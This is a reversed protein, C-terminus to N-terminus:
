GFTAGSEIVNVRSVGANIDEVTVIPTPISEIVRATLEAFQEIQLSNSDMGRAVIGGNQAYSIGVGGRQGFANNFDMFQNSANRNLVGILEGKEAEFRTGDSGVFKTGGASHRNGGVEMIGGSEFKTDTKAIQAVNGLGFLLAKGGALTARVISTPDGVVLQSAYAKTASLFADATALAISLDKNKIGFANLLSGVENLANRTSDIKAIEAKKKLQEDLLYYKKNIKNVDAGTKEANAVELQRQQELRSQQISLEDQFILDEIARANELDIRLQEQKATKRALEAEDIKAQNDKNIQNIADNYENENILGEALRTAEFQRRQEALANLRATEEILIQESLFKNKDILSKSKDLEADLERRAFDVTLEAQKQLFDNQINLKEAEYETKSKKGAKFEQDLLALRKATLDQEFVFADELTKSKFGQEAIFLDILSKSEKLANAIREESIRKAEAQAEKRAGALVRLQELEAELARDQADDLQKELDILEQQGERSTDNLSQQIKLQQIKKQIIAEEQVSLEKTLRIIELSAKEREKFSKSTDKAILRQADILDNTAIQARNYALTSKEIDKQLRDIEKGKEIAEKFFKATQEGAVKVRDILKNNAEATADIGKKLQDGDFTFIGVVIDKLAKFRNIVQEQVLDSFVKIIKQPDKFSDFLFKGVQQVVGLLASFVAQVPRTVATLADMGEQTSKLYTVLAGFVLGIAGIVAGIPTAIFALSSRTVGIIGQGITKLSTTLLNGVGGAEQARTVFGGLGGNFINLDSFAQKISDSYNGINIKQKLYQDANEKIFENNEDLKKNLATLEERGKETTTNTENRLKNLIKNQERAEAISTAEQELALTLLQERNTLDATAQTQASIAKVNQNYATTLVKLDASNQVFVESSTDGAKALEKQQTKLADIEKKLLSTSKILADIDINLEALVIKEAM